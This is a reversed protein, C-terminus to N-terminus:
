LSPDVFRYEQIYKTQEVARNTFVTQVNQLQIQVPETSTASGIKNGKLAESFLWMNWAFSSILFLTFLVLLILWDRVPRPTSGYRLSFHPLKSPGLKM